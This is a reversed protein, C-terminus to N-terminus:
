SFNYIEKIRSILDQSSLVLEAGESILTNTLDDGTNNCPLAMIEKNNDLAFRVTTSSGSKNKGGGVFLIESLSAIIRNRKIFSDHTPSTNSPYESLLLGKKSKCYNYIETSEKPYIVDIGNGLVGILPSKTNMGALMSTLDLGKALGSIIAVKSKFFEEVEYLLKYTYQSQYKTPTRTGISSIRLNYKLLSIDGYYFLCFPPHFIRKLSDPYDNDLITLYKTQNSCLCKYEDEDVKDKEIISDYIKDWDGKHKLAYYHIIERNTLM